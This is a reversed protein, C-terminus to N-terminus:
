DLDWPLHYCLTAPALGVHNKAWATVYATHPVPAFIETLIAWWDHRQHLALLWVGGSLGNTGEVIITTSPVHVVELTIGLKIELKKIEEVMSHLGPSTSSGATVAFYTVINDTFYFFTVNMIDAQDSPTLGLTKQILDLPKRAAASKALKGSKAFYTAAPSCSPTGGALHLTDLTTKKDYNPVPPQISSILAHAQLVPCLVHDGDSTWKSDTRKILLPSRSMSPMTLTATQQSSENEPTESYSM